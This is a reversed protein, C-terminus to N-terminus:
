RTRGRKIIKVRTNELYEIRKKLYRPNHAFVDCYQVEYLKEALVPDNKILDDSIACDHNRILYLVINKFDKSYNFRDLVCQAMKYSYIEHNHYHRVEGDVCSMPKGIDHLLLALRVDYDQFYNEEAVYLSLLTHNWLDYNHHPHKQDFGIMSEIEPIYALLSDMNQNISMVVNKNLLIKEINM